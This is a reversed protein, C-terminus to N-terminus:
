GNLCPKPPPTHVSATQMEHSIQYLLCLLHFISIHWRRKGWFTKNFLLQETLGCRKQTETNRHHKLEPTEEKEKGETVERFGWLLAKTSYPVASFPHHLVPFIFHYFVSYLLMLCIMLYLDSFVCLLLRNSPLFFCYGTGLM